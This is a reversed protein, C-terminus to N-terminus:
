TRKSILPSKGGKAAELGRLESSFADHIQDFSQSKRGAREIRSLRTRTLKETALRHPKSGNDILRDPFDRGSATQIATQAEMERAEQAGDPTRGCSMHATTNGLAFLDLRWQEYVRNPDLVRV